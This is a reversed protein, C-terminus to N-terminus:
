PDKIIFVTWGQTLWDPNNRWSRQWDPEWALLHSNQWARTCDLEEIQFSNPHRSLNWAEGANAFEHEGCICFKALCGFEQCNFCTMPKGGMVMFWFCVKLTETDKERLYKQWEQLMKSEKIEWVWMDTRYHKCQFNSWYIGGIGGMKRKSGKM